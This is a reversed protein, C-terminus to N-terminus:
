RKVEAFLQHDAAFATLRGLRALPVLAPAAAPPQAPAEKGHRVIREDASASAAALPLALGAAFGGLELASLTPPLMLVGRLPPLLMGGLQLAVGGGLLKWFLPDPRGAARCVLAYSLEIGAFLSFALAPGGLILGGAGAAALQLGDRLGAGLAAPSLLQADRPLPRSGFLNSQAPELALALAPLTDSVLNLWLLQMPHFPARAGVVAAGLMMAVEAINTTLLYFVSRRLNDQVIRGEFVASLISRLDENELVIDAAQRAVDNSGIGIAIGVDAAKLAPADNIGDGAMAVVEGAARLAKVIRVKDQPTVRSFVVTQRLRDRDDERESDLLRVTQPGDLTGGRLGIQRAIANATRSQDGTLIVTRIGSRAAARITEAASDRLPDRLGVMGILTYGSDLDKPQDPRVARWGLALVRLGDNAMADNRARLRRREVAGLRGERTQSCIRLVQEPAGKVFAITVGDPTDHLSVVYHVDAERERLLRRPYRRRLDSRDLGSNQAAAVLARETASGVISQGRGNDQADVDSNLVAAALALTAADAFIDHATAQVAAPGLPGGGVDLRELRMENRTLTGTKDACVVSVNGLTEAAALRRVVMGRQRMRKMSRILAATSVVPMGEPIAAVALAVAGRLSETLPRGRVLDVAAVAVGSTLGGLALRNGLHEMRRELPTQPSKQEALLRGVTAAETAPGTATVVARGHGSAVTTGKFLMCTRDALGVEVAVRDAGKARPESEGTLMSEDCSLRHSEIVRADAPLMDGARCILIDGVVLDAAPVTQFEGDRLVRAEGEELKRWSALLQESEGEIGYGIAANLGVASLIAGADFFDRVLASLASSGLLLGSPLNAFQSALLELRTREGVPPVRNPGFQRLRYSAEEATLGAPGAALADLVEEVAMTHWLRQAPATRRNQLAGWRWRPPTRTAARERQAGSSPQEQLRRLLPANAAYGVLVRGSRPNCKVLEVGATGRLEREIRRALWPEALLEPVALRLRRAATAHRVVVAPHPLSRLRLVTMPFRSSIPPESIGMLYHSCM